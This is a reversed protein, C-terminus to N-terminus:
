NLDSRPPLMKKIYTTLKKEGLINKLFVLSIANMDLEGYRSLNYGADSLVQRLALQFSNFNNASKVQGTLREISGSDM